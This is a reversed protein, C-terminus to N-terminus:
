ITAEIKDGKMSWSKDIALGIVLPQRQETSVAPPTKMKILLHNIQSSHKQFQPSELKAELEM